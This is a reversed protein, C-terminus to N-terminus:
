FGQGELRNHFRPISAHNYLVPIIITLGKLSLASMRDDKRWSPLTCVCGHISNTPVFKILNQCGGSSAAGDKHIAAQAALWALDRGQVEEVM